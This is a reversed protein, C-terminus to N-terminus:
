SDDFELSNITIPSNLCSVGRCEGCMQSCQLGHKKCTCRRNDCDGKCNCKVLTLLRSPAPPQDTLVPFMKGDMERVRWGWQRPDLQLM